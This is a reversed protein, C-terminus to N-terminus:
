KLNREQVNIVKQQKIAELEAMKQSSNTRIPFWEPFQIVYPAAAAATAAAAAAAVEQAVTLPEQKSLYQQTHYIFYTATTLISFAAASQVAGKTGKSMGGFLGGTLVGSVLHHAAGAAINTNTDIVNNSAKLMAHHTTISIGSYIFAVSAFKRSIRWGYAFPSKGQAAGAIVGGILGLSSGVAVSQLVTRRFHQQPQDTAVCLAFLAAFSRDVYAPYEVAATVNQGSTSKSM